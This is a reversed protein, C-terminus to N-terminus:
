PERRLFFRTFTGSEKTDYVTFDSASLTEKVADVTEELNLSNQVSILLVTGDDYSYDSLAQLNSRYVIGVRRCKSLIVLDENAENWDADPLVYVADTKAPVEITEIGGPYLADPRHMFANAFFFIIAAVIVPAGICVVDKIKQKLPLNRVPYSVASVALLVIFPYLCLFYRRTLFPVMQPVFFLYGLVPVTIMATKYVPIKKNQSLLFLVVAVLCIGLFIWYKGKGFLDGFLMDLIYKLPFFSYKGGTVAAISSQGRYGLFVHKISFPWILIGICASIVMTLVYKLVAKGRKSVALTLITILAVFIAIIVFYYHTMYGLITLAALGVYKRRMVKKDTNKDDTAVYSLHANVFALVMLTLLAYMRIFVADTVFCASTGWILSCVIANFDGGFHKRVMTYLTWLALGMFCTNMVIGFWKSFVGPAFSSITHLVMYFLPPHVDGRQNYYVSAYNFRNSPSASLYYKYESGDMWTTTYTDRSNNQAILYDAYLKTNKVQFSADKLIAFDKSLNGFLQFVNEGAGYEMMWDKVSYEQIGFHMFPLYASNALGYSYQEDIHYGEKKNGWFLCLGMSLVVLALRILISAKKGLKLNM